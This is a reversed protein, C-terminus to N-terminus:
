WDEYERIRLLYSFFFFRFIYPIFLIGVSYFSPHMCGHLILFYEAPKPHSAKGSRSEEAAIMM